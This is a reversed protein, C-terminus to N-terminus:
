GITRTAPLEQEERAEHPEEVVLVEERDVAVPETTGCDVRRGRGKKFGMIYTSSKGKAAELKQVVLTPNGQCGLVKILVNKPVYLIPLPSHCNAFGVDQYGGSDRRFPMTGARAM